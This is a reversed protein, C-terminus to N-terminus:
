ITYSFHNYRRVVIAILNQSYVAGNIKSFCHQWGPCSIIQEALRFIDGTFIRDRRM